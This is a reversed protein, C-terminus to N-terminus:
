FLFISGSVIEFLSKILIVIKFNLMYLLLYLLIKVSNVLKFESIQLM